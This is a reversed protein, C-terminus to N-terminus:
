AVEGSIIACYYKKDAVSKSVHLVRANDIRAVHTSNIYGTDFDTDSDLSIQTCASTTCEYVARFDNTSGFGDRGELVFFDDVVWVMSLTDYYAGSSIISNAVFSLSTGNYSARGVTFGFNDDLHAFCIANSDSVALALGDPIDTDNDYLEITSEVTLTTGSRSVLVMYILDGDPYLMVVENNDASYEVLDFHPAESSTEDLLKVTSEVTPTTGSVSVLALYVDFDGRYAIGWYGSGWASIATEDQPLRSENSILVPTGAVFTSGNHEVVVVNLLDGTNQNYYILWKDDGIQKISICNIGDDGATIIKVPTGPVPTTGSTGVAIEVMYLDTAVIHIVVMNGNDWSATRASSFEVNSDEDILVRAGDNSGTWNAWDSAITVEINAGFGVINNLKFM